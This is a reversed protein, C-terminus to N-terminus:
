LILVGVQVHVALAAAHPVPEHGHLPHDAEQGRGQGPHVEAAALVRELHHLSGGSVRRRLGGDRRDHVPEPVAGGHTQFFLLM